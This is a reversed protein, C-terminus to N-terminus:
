TYNVLVLGAINSYTLKQQLVYFSHTGNNNMALKWLIGDGTASVFKKNGKPHLSPLYRTYLSLPIPLSIKKEIISHRLHLLRYISEGFFLQSEPGTGSQVVSNSM